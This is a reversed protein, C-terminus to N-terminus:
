RHELWWLLYPWGAAVAQCIAAVGIVVTLRFVNRAIRSSDSSATDLACRLHETSQVQAESAKKLESMLEQNTRVRAALRLYSYYDEDNGGRINPHALIEEASKGKIESAYASM